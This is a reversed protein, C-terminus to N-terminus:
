RRPRCDRGDAPRRVAPKPSRATRGPQPRTVSSDCEAPVPFALDSARNSVELQFEKPRTTYLITGDANKREGEDRTHGDHGRDAYQEEELLASFLAKGAREACVASCLRDATRKLILGGRHDSRAAEGQARPLAQGMVRQRGCGCDPLLGRQSRCERNEPCRDACARTRRTAADRDAGRSPWRTAQQARGAGQRLDRQPSRCSFNAEM